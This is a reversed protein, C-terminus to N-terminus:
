PDTKKRVNDYDRQTMVSINRGMVNHILYRLKKCENVTKGICM